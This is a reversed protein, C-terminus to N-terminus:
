INKLIAAYISIRSPNYVLLSILKIFNIHNNKQLSKTMIFVIIKRIDDYSLKKFSEMSNYFDDINNKSNLIEAAIKQIKSFAASKLAAAADDWTWYVEKLIEIDENTLNYEKKLNNWESYNSLIQVVSCRSILTKLILNLNKAIFIWYIKKNPHEIFNLLSNGVSKNCKDLNNIVCIKKQCSELGSVSFRNRLNLITDKSFDKDAADLRILDYYTNANIKKCFICQNCSNSAETKSCCVINRIYGNITPEVIGGKKVIFLVAHYAFYKM